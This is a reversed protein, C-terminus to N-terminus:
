PAGGEAVDHQGTLRRRMHSWSMGVGLVLAAILLGLWTMLQHDGLKVVGYDVAVWILACSFGVVLVVGIVGLSQFTARLAVLWGALLLIGALAFVSMVQPPGMAWHVFSTGTPNFTLVVLLLAGIFRVLLGVPGNM